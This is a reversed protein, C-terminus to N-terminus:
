GVSVLWPVNPVMAITGPYVAVHAASPAQVPGHSADNPNTTMPM